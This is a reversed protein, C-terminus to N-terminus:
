YLLGSRAIPANPVLRFPLGLKTLRSQLLRIVMERPEDNSVLELSRGNGAVKRGRVRARAGSLTQRSSDNGVASRVRLAVQTVGGTRV